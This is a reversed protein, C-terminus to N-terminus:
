ELILTTLFIVIGTIIGSFKIRKNSKTLIEPILEFIIIYIIMGTTISLLIGRITNNIIGSLVFMLIGGLLTSLSILVLIAINKKKTNSSKFLTSTIMIGLPINHLCIGVTLLFGLENSAISTSYIATGEIINHLILAASSVIGIHLLNENSVSDEHDHDPIFIDLIKLLLIGVLSLIIILIGSTLYNFELLEFSEPILEFILLTIMVGTAMSISFDTLKKSNKLILVIITGILISLGSLFTMILGFM